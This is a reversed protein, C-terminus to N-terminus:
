EMTLKKKEDKPLSASSSAVSSSGGSLMNRVEDSDVEDVVAPLRAHDSVVCDNEV